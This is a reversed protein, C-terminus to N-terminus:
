HGGSVRLGTRVGDLAIAGSTSVNKGREGPVEDVVRQGPAARGYLRTFGLHSGMEDIFVYNRWDFAATLQWFEQRQPEDREPYHLSKKQPAAGTTPAGPVADASEGHRGRKGGARNTM